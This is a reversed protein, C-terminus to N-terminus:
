APVLEAKAADNAKKMASRESSEFMSWAATKEEVSLDSTEESWLKAAKDAGFRNFEAQICDVIDRLQIQQDISLSEWAGSTPTISKSESRKEARKAQKAAANGDDDEPAIGCAAMLSYRRAYTLASGYGQPDNKSAPVHLKGCDLFDGSEHLFMTEVIVGNPCEYCKQVLAIGANNLADLVAEVCNGLDAYKSKFHPNLSSKLAPAFNKQAKVLASAIEKM